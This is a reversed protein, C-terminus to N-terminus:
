RGNRCWCPAKECRRDQGAGARIPRPALHLRPERVLGSSAVHRYQYGGAPRYLAVQRAQSLVTGDSLMLELPIDSDPSMREAAREHQRCYALYFQETISFYVRIPDVTSVTTLVTGGPGVLDGIQAQAIGAIGEVPSTIRTFGLNLRASEVAAKDALVAAKAMLNAQVADDLQEQSIDQQKALPTYRNVDLETKGLMAKDQELKALAQDLTAQFPRPDIEFLLDGEKVRSGEVYDQKLLYGTVQARIQRM